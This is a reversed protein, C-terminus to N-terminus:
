TVALYVAGAAILEILLERQKAAAREKKIAKTLASLSQNANQLGAEATRSAELATTLQQQLKASQMQLLNVQQKAEGLQKQLEIWDQTSLGQQQQSKQLLATLQTLLQAQRENNLKLQQFDNRLTQYDTISMTVTEPEAASCTGVSFALSCLLVLALFSLRKIKCM